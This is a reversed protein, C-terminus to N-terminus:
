TNNTSDYQRYFDLIRILCYIGIELDRAEIYEPNRNVPSNHHVAENGFIRILHLYSKIWSAVGLTGLSEIKKDLQFKQQALPNINDLIYEVTKRAIAGFEFAKFPTNILRKLDSFVHNNDCKYTHILGSVLINLDKILIHALESNPTNILKRGLLTNMENDFVKLFKNGTYLVFYIKSLYRAHKLFDISAKLLVSIVNKPDIGQNGAGLLPIAITKNQEGRIELAALVAFLNNIAGSLTDNAGIIEVCILKKAFFQNLKESVWIGLSERFDLEPQQSLKDVNLGRNYLQGIVTGPVPIYGNKFASVCILDVEFPLNTIDGEYLEFQKIGTPTENQVFNITM